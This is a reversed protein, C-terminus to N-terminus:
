SNMVHHAAAVGARVAGELTSPYPGDVYDGAVWAGGHEAAARAPPRQLQPTCAMTARREAISRVITVQDRQVGPLNLAQERVAQELIPLGQDLWPRADSSVLTFLGSCAHGLASLDFAFQAPGGNLRVMPGPLQAGPAQVWTTVIPEFPIAMATQSWAPDWAQLLRAAEGATTALVLRDVTEVAHATHVLWRTQEGADVMAQVSPAKMPEIRMVRRGLHVQAGAQQLHNLAPGPVLDHLNCRPILLDSGGPGAFLGDALVRLFVRADATKSPTNLAAVCLPDILESSVRSPLGECLRAVTWGAPCQFGQFQWRAMRLLLRARDALPWGGYAVLGRLFAMVPHGGPLKLGVGHPDILQLGSRWLAAHLDVGLRKMLRLSDTYAGILIHQGCDLDSVGLGPVELPIGSRARGGLTPAMDWVTVACGADALEVAAALGAWGAGVVGVRLRSRATM